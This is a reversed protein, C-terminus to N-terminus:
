YKKRQRSSSVGLVKRYKTVTRRAIDLGEKRLIEVIKSDGLPNEKDEGEILEKIRNVVSMRSKDEGESCETAGSFFYKLAFIGRPSQVYKESIARSVTSVHIGLEDAVEQMRLPKLHSIGHEFFPRQIQVIRDSIRWLTHQRQEISGILRKAAEIKRRVFEKVKPNAGRDALIRHCYPSICLRPLYTEKTRVVYEGDIVDVQIEPIIYPVNDDSFDRGPRPNLLALKDVLRKIEPVSQGTDKAVKPLKNAGIDELSTRILTSLADHDPDQPDLQLLLCEKVDRAGVGQPDLHQIAHLVQEVEELTVHLPAVTEEFSMLPKGGPDMREFVHTKLERDKDEDELFLEYALEKATKEGAAEAALRAAGDLISRVQEDISGNVSATIEPLPVKLYGNPSINYILHQGIRRIRETRAALVFQQNLHEQLSESRAPTNQMAELKKDKLPDDGGTRTPSFEKWERELQELLNLNEDLGRDREAEAEATEEASLEQVSEREVHDDAEPKEEAPSADEAKDGEKVPDLKPDVESELELTPNDELEQKILEQLDLMPLQLIEISQIIQPALKLRMEQRHQLGLEMKM